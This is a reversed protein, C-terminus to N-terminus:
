QKDMRYPLAEMQEGWVGLGDRGVWSGKPFGMDTGVDTFRNQLYTGKHGVKSEVCLHFRM